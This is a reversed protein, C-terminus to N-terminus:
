SCPLPDLIVWKTKVIKKYKITYSYFFSTNKKKLNYIHNGGYQLFHLHNGFREKREFILIDGFCVHVNYLSKATIFFHTFICFVTRIFHVFFNQDKLPFYLEDYLKMKIVSHRIVKKGFLFNYCVLIM